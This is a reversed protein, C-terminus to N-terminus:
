PPVSQDLVYYTGEPPAYVYIIQQEFVFNFDVLKEVRVIIPIKVAYPQRNVDYLIYQNKTDEAITFPKGEQSTFGNGFTGFGTPTDKVYTDGLKSYTQIYLKSNNTGNKVCVSFISSGM